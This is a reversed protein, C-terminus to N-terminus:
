RRMRRRRSAAGVVALGALLLAYTQPEPVPPTTVVHGEFRLIPASFDQLAGGEMQPTYDAFDTGHYWGDLNQTGAAQSPVWNAINVGVATGAAGLLGSYGIFYTTGAAIGIDAFSAHGSADLLGSFLTTSGVSAPWDTAILLTAQSPSLVNSAGSYFTSGLGTLVFSQTAKWKWGATDTGFVFSGPTATGNVDAIVPDASALPAALALPAACLM